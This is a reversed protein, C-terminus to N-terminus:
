RKQVGGLFRALAEADVACSQNLGSVAAFGDRAITQALAYLAGFSTSGGAHSCGGLTPYRSEDNESIPTHM